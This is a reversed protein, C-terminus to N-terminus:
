EIKIFNKYHTFFQADELFQNLQQANFVGICLSFQCRMEKISFLYLNNAHYTEYFEESNNKTEQAFHPDAIILQDKGQIGIFYYGRKRNGGIMGFNNRFKAFILPILDYYNPDLLDSGLRFSIFIIGGKKFVYDNQDYHIIESNNPNNSGNYQECFENFLKKTNIIGVCFNIINIDNFIDSNINTFVYIMNMDSTFVGACDGIKSLIHISYPPVVKLITKYEPDEKEVEKILEWFCQYDPHNKIEEVPLYNDNFLALVEERIKKIINDDININNQRLDFIKKEILSKSLIMQSCRIMCGWGCDSTYNKSGITKMNILGTRYTFYLFSNLIDNIEYENKLSIEKNFLYIPVNKEDFEFKKSSNHYYYLSVILCKLSGIISNKVKSKTIAMSKLLKKNIYKKKPKVETKNSIQNDLYKDISYRLLDDEM